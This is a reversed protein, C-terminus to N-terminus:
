PWVRHTERSAPPRNVHSNGALLQTPLIEFLDLPDNDGAFVGPVTQWLPAFHPDGIHGDFGVVGTAGALAVSMCSAVAQRALPHEPILAETLISEPEDDPFVFAVAVAAGDITCLASRNPAIESAVEDFLALLEAHPATPSWGRHIVEYWTTWLEVVDASELNTTPLTAHARAWERVEPTSADVRLPPCSQYIRAGAELLRRHADSGPMATASLPRPHSAAFRRLEDATWPEELVATDSGTPDLASPCTSSHLGRRM